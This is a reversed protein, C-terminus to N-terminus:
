SPVVVVLSCFPRTASIGIGQGPTLLLVRWASDSPETQNKEEGLNYQCSHTM